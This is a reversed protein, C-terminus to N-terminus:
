TLKNIVHLQNESVEAEFAPNMDHFHLCTPTRFHFRVRADPYRSQIRRINEVRIKGIKTPNKHSKQQLKRTLDRLNTQINM